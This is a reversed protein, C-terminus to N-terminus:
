KPPLSGEFGKRGSFTIDELPLFGVDSFGMATVNGNVPNIRLISISGNFGYFRLWAEPPIQLARCFFYRTMNMHGVIIDYEVNWERPGAVRQRTKCPVGRSLYSRFGAEARAGDLYVNRGTCNGESATVDHAAPMAESLNADPPMRTVHSPLRSAIIDATEVARPMTSSFIRVDGERGPTNLAPKLLEVLRDGTCAAQKQGLPTLVQAKSLTLWSGRQLEEDQEFQHKGVTEILQDELEDQEEYQGHRVLIVYRFPAGGYAYQMYAERYFEPLDHKRKEVRKEVDEISKYKSDPSFMYHDLFLKRIAAAYDTVPWDHGLAEAVAETDFKLYDWNTDYAPYPAVPKFEQEPVPVSRFRNEDGELHAAPRQALHIGSVLAAVGATPRVLMRM